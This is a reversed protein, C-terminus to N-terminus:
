KGPVYYKSYKIRFIIYKISKSYLCLTIYSVDATQGVLTLKNMTKINANNNTEPFKRSPLYERACATMELTNISHKASLCEDQSSNM